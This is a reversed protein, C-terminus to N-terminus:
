KLMRSISQSEDKLEEYKKKYNEAETKLKKIENEKMMKYDVFEKKMAALEDQLFKTNLNANSIFAKEFEAKIEAFSPRNKPNLDLVKILIGSLKKSISLDPDNKLKMGKVIDIFKSYDKDRIKYQNVYNALQIETDGTALQYITMGRCYVDISNIVYPPVMRHIEPPSYIPSIETIKGTLGSITGFLQTRKDFDKASGFDIVKLIGDKMVFNGPKIDSHFVNNAAMISLPELIKLAIDIVQMADLKGILSILSEGDYDLLIEIYVEKVEEDGLEDKKLPEAIHKSLKALRKARDYEARIAEIDEKSDSPCMFTKLIYRTNDNCSIFFVSRTGDISEQIQGNPLSDLVSTMYLIGKVAKLSQKKKSM